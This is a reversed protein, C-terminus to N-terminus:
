AARGENNTVYERIRRLWRSDVATWRMSNAWGVLQLVMAIIFAIGFWPHLLRARPGGGFLPALPKYLWPTFLAFGSLLALIFFLAVGWHVLRTCVRRRLVAGDHVVSRCLTTQEVRAGRSPEAAAGITRGQRRRNGHSRGQGWSTRVCRARTSRKPRPISNRFILLVARLVSSAALAIRSNFTSLAM